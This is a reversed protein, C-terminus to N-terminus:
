PQVGKIANSLAVGVPGAADSIAYQIYVETTPPLGAPWSAVPLAIVGSGNTFLTFDVLIPVAALTGGKFPTPTSAFSLFLVSLASSAANTLDISNATGVVMTGTGVLSPVGSVGALGFGIDSWAGGVPPVNIPGLDLANGSSDTATCNVTLTLTGGPTPAAARFLGGGMHTADLTGGDVVGTTSWTFEVTANIHGDDSVADVIQLHLVTEPNSIALPVDMDVLTPALTDAPGNNFYIKNTFNGSEGQGTVMDYTNNGDLDAFGFDLSSDTITQIVASQNTFSGGGNNRYVKEGSNALSAVFSDLDGDNDYDMLAMENDDQGNAGPYTSEPMPTGPGDNRGWGENQGAISQVAADFDDDGDLDGWEIEYTAGSGLANMANNISFNGTGDNLYLRGRKGNAGKGSLAIDIDFDGDFDFLTADQCNYLDVPMQAATVNTFVGSGDNLLLFAQSAVGGFTGGDTVVVDMDGDDDIDGAAVCFSKPNPSFSPVRTSTENTFNGTGDNILMRPRTGNSGSAYFLDPDGDNDFDEAIVMKANFNTVNLQGHAASFVGSGNNLYLHQPQNGATGGGGYASGNAFLIDIDGDNDVDVLEIGDTWVAQAPLAAAVRLFQQANALPSLTLAALTLFCSIRLM